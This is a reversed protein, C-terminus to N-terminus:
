IKTNSYRSHSECESQKMKQIKELEEKAHSRKRSIKELDQQLAISLKENTELERKLGTIVEDQVSLKEDAQKMAGSNAQILDRYTRYESNLNDFNDKLQHFEARSEVLETHFQSLM